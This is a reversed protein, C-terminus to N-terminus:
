RVGALAKMARLDLALGSDADQWLESVAQAWRRAREPDRQQAALRARLAMAYVLSAPGHLQRFLLTRQLPLSELADDLTSAATGSDGVVLRLWAEQYVADLGLQSTQVAANRRMADLDALRRRLAASDGRVLLAQLTLLFPGPKRTDHISRLGFNPFGL